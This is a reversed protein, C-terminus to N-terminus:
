KFIRNLENVFKEAAKTPDKAMNIGSSIAVGYVGIENLVPLDKLIIGGIAIIPLNIKRHQLQNIVYEYGKIGVIPSLNQKTTTFRYPGLGVYDVHELNLTLIDELTNTTAGIFFNNELLVVAESIRMDDKGLHVGDALINKALTAYDNIVFTAGYKVCVDQTRLAEDKLSDEDFDKVRLQVWNVGGKCALEANQAHTRGQCAQTIYHLRSIM